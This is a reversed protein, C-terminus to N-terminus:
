QPSAFSRPNSHQARNNMTARPRNDFSGPGGLQAGRSAGLSSSIGSATAGYVPVPNQQQMARFAELDAIGSIAISNHEPDVRPSTNEDSEDCVSLLRNCSNEMCALSERWCTWEDLCPSMVANESVCYELALFLVGMVFLSLFVLAIRRSMASAGSDSGSPGDGSTYGYKDDTDSDLVASSLNTPFMAMLAPFNISGWGSVPDWGVM